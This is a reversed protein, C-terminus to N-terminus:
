FIDSGTPTMIDEPKQQIPTQPKPRTGWAANYKANDEEEIRNLFAEIFCM